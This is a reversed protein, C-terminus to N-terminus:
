HATFCAIFFSSPRLLFFCFGEDLHKPNIPPAILTGECLLLPGVATAIIPRLSFRNPDVFGTHPGHKGRETEEYVMPCTDMLVTVFGENRLAGPAHADGGGDIVKFEKRRM